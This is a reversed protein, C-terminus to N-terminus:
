NITPDTTPHFNPRKRVFFNESTRHQCLMRQASPFNTPSVIYATQFGSFRKCCLSFRHNWSSIGHVLRRQGRFDAAAEASERKGDLRLFAPNKTSARRAPRYLEREKPTPRYSLRYLLPSKIRQDRTRIEGSGGNWSAKSTLSFFGVLRTPKKTKQSGFGNTSDTQRPM